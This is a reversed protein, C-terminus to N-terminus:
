VAITITLIDGYVVYSDVFRLEGDQYSYRDPNLVVGNLSVQQPKKDVGPVTLNTIKQVTNPDSSTVIHKINKLGISSSSSTKILLVDQKLAIGLFVDTKDKSFDGPTKNSLYYNKGVELVKGVIKVEGQTAVSLEEQGAKSMSIQCIGLVNAKDSGDAIAKELKGTNPDLYVFDGSVITGKFSAEFPRKLTSSTSSGDENFLRNEIESVVQSLPRNFNTSNAREGDRLWSVKDSIVGM